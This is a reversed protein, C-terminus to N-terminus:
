VDPDRSFGFDEIEAVVEPIDHLLCVEYSVDSQEYTTELRMDYKTKRERVVGKYALAKPYKRQLDKLREEAFSADDIADDLNSSTDTSWRWKLSAPDGM